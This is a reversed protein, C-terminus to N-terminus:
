TSPPSRCAPRREDGALGGGRLHAREDVPEGLAHAARLLHPRAPAARVQHPRQPEPAHRGGPAFVRRLPGGSAGLGRAPDRGGPRDRFRRHVAGARGSGADVGGPPRGPRRRLGARQNRAVGQVAGGHAGAPARRHLHLHAASPEGGAGAPHLQPPQQPHRHRHRHRQAGQADPPLLRREHRVGPGRLHGGRRHDHARRGPHLLDAGATQLPGRGDGLQMFEKVPAEEVMVPDISNSMAWQFRKHIEPYPADLAIALRERKQLMGCAVPMSYGVPNEFLLARDSQDTLAAVDRLDVPKRIDLLEDNARLLEIYERFTGNM